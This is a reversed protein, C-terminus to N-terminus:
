ETKLSKVPNVLAAKIGQYSVTLLTILLAGAGAAAFVWWSMDSRYDYHQLWGHMFYWAIPWAVLLSVLVLFIFDRSLLGWLNIVSAGLVKRVGIERTRQGAMFSAMGFLGLCSIFIALLTFLGALKGIREENGFKRAYDEEVFRYEFPQSPNFKKFIPEIKSLAYGASVTPKIKIIVVDGSNNSIHFVAPRAQEYPSQVVMDKVVGIVKFPQGFWKITEGLPNKLGMFQVARENLVFATSDSPFDRSFDRGERFQWGITNGYDYSVDSTAFNVSLNPDKDKWDFGGTSSTYQTPPSGGEAASAIAGTRLLEEKVANFHLHVDGIKMPLALLGDRSYGVPRNKAFQVQRFIITTGIILSISVTFQLVVLIKRPMAAWRGAKYTGKLVKVPKFSSLYFAPYCGAILGTVLSFGIGLLWFLPNHWAISMKKDAVENFVPILLSALLLSLMFSLVAVLLSEGLFQYILGSRLSGMTKRIGVEKARMESRATSLNMFNICALLLVFMGIIGFMWVYQIRGGTNVGNKFDSYLHLKSMPQLFIEPKKKALDKNVKNLKADRIKASVGNMDAHEALQAFIVFANPRWPDPTTKIWETNNFYLDWPAMFAMDAFSSNHPLDEYVGTVKVAMKNDLQMQKDLPDEDGFYAKATSESVLISSPDKLGGRTGKIMKLTLMDPAQSEFFTGTQTLKKDGWALIHSRLGDSVVVFKFDSGYNKRLEAALPYPVTTWTQVEGNNMSNQKVQAIRDYNRHYQDFSCEDWIWLGILLAVAMGIALGAINIFSYGKSKLLNRWAIKFYNRLM